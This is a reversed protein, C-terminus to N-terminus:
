SSPAMTSSDREEILRTMILGCFRHEASSYLWGLHLGCQRCILVRWTYGRFWSFFDTDEGVPLCGPAQAFCGVRFSIGEPNLQHHEHKGEIEVRDCTRTIRNTCACCELWQPPNPKEQELDEEQSLIESLPSTKSKLLAFFAFKAFVTGGLVM